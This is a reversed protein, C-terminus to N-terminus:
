GVLPNDAFCADELHMREDARRHRAHMPYLWSQEMGPVTHIHIALNKKQILSFDRGCVCVSACLSLHPPPIIHVAGRRLLASSILRCMGRYNLGISTCHPDGKQLVKELCLWLWLKLIQFLLNILYGTLHMFFRIMMLPQSRRRPHPSFSIAPFPSSDFRQFHLRRCQATATATAAAGVMLVVSSCKKKVMKM